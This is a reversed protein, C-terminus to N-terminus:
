GTFAFGVAASQKGSLLAFLSYRGASVRTRTGACQPQSSLGSWSIERRIPQNVPLTELSTGPEIACDHSSWVRASGSFVRLEIQGDALDQVCPALGKNTVVLALKPSEGVTYTTKDSAAQVALESAVCPRPPASSPASTSPRASTSPASSGPPASSPATSTSAPPRTSTNTAGPSATKKDGGFFTAYATLGALFVAAVLLIRRRWYVSPELDGVPHIM